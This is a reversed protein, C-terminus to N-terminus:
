RQNTVEKKMNWKKFKNIEFGMNRNWLDKFTLLSLWQASYFSFHAGRKYIGTFHLRFLHFTVSTDYLETAKVFLFQIHDTWRSM